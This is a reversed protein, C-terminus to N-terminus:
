KTKMAAISSLMVYGIYHSVTTKGMVFPQEEHIRYGMRRYWALGASNQVMVGIWVRDLGLLRAEEAALQMLRTGIGLGQYTPLIYLSSVYYRREDQAYNTRVFGVVKEIETAVFGHVNRDYCLKELHERSYFEDHYARLDEEPIFSQYAGMWTQWIVDPIEELDATTWRRFAFNM